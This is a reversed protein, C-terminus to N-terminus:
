AIYWWGKACMRLIWVTGIDGPQPGYVVQEGTDESSGTAAARGTLIGGGSFIHLTGFM